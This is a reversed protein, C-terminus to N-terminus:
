LRPLSDFRQVPHLPPLQSTLLSLAGKDLLLLVWCPQAQGEVTFDTGAGFSAPAQDENLKESQRM